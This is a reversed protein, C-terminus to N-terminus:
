DELKGPPFSQDIPIGSVSTNWRIVRYIVWLQAWQRRLLSFQGLAGTFRSNNATFKIVSSASIGYGHRQCAKNLGHFTWDIASDVWVEATSVYAVCVALLATPSLLKLSLLTNLHSWESCSHLQSSTMARGGDYGLWVADFRKSSDSSLQQLYDLLKAGSLVDVSRALFVQAM